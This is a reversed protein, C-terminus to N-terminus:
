VVSKRDQGTFFYLPLGILLTAPMLWWGASIFDPHFPNDLRLWFSLCLALSMVVVDIAILLARRAPTPLTTVPTIFQTLVEFRLSKM